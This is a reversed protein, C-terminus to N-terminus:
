LEMSLGFHVALEAGATSTVTRDGDRASLSRLPVGLSAGGELWIPHALRLAARLGARATAALGSLEAEVSDGRAEGRFRVWAARAGAVGSLEFAPADVFRYGVMAAVGLTSAGIRGNPATERLAERAGGSLELLLAPGLAASLAADAGIQVQGGGFVEAAGRAGLRSASARTDLTSEVVATVEPPPPHKSRRARAFALEVWSARLLEDAALAVAFARGDQPVASLDIDRAVRKETVSDRVEVSVGVTTATPQAIRIAAIAATSPGSPAPCVDIDRDVLGARLDELMRDRHAKFHSGEFDVSVWPRGVQGCAAHAAEVALWAGLALLWPGCRSVTVRAIM